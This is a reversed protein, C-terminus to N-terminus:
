YQFIQIKDNNKATLVLKKKGATVTIIDRVAGMSFFGSKQVPVNVFGGNGDGKLLVGYSADYIGAEPKSEYFNGGMLIDPRGDGDFDGVAIGYMPSFQAEAPLARRTFGGKGNNTFVSSEMTYADLRVAKGLQEPTFIDSITEDKYSDYRQYKKKLYPLVAVLDHRLAMPYSSDGNYSTVVQEVTGNGDFDSVYMSVPKAGSAKFRSNLGHNGAVIDPYGDGNVDAIEIRNWWGNTKGLGAQATAEKLRGGGENHFLRLPMYEGAVVLDPRGDRDYDFWRADTVMGAELLAPAAQQTVDTFMGRGNNQLLYGKCPYGYSFPKLRVGVFLDMDGDGDYDAATVCSASEFIYSPLIQPSKSFNGRGDNIYLRSILDTSNPSVESGGSCVFLDM